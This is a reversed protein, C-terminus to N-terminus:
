KGPEDPPVLAALQRLEEESMKSLDPGFGTGKINVNQSQSWEGSQKSRNNLWYMLAMVDPPVRKTVTRIKVPKITGDTAMEVIREEENYEFGMCREYLKREARADSPEKGATVAEGFSTLVKVPKGDKDKIPKGDKDEVIKYMWRIFTRLGIGMAQAMEENTAGKIALSWAWDDHYDKNYKTLPAVDNV